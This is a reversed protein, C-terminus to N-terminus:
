LDITDAEKERERERVRQNLTKFQISKTIM